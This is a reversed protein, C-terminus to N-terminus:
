CTLHSLRQMYPGASPSEGYEVVGEYYPNKTRELFRELLRVASDLYFTDMDGVYIHLKGKLKPGLTTWDRQLIYRLDYNEKWYAAVSPDIEGTRKDFLPKVYGDPGVPGYAAEFIDIQDGSRNKTGMALEM